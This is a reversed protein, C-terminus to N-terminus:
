ETMSLGSVASWIGVPRWRFGEPEKFLMVIDYDQTVLDGVDDLLKWGTAGYYHECVSPIAKAIAEGDYKGALLVSRMAVNAADYMYLAYMTPEAGMREKLKSLFRDGAPTSIYHATTGVAKVQIMFDGLEPPSKPPLIGALTIVDGGVLKVKSLSPYEKVHGLVNAMEAEQIYEVVGTREDAGFAEVERNLQAVESSYDAQGPTIRITKIEGKFHEQFVESIATAALDDRYFVVAKQIGLHMAVDAMAWGQLKDSAWMRFIYDKVSLAPSSVTTTVVAIHHTDVYSKLGLTVSSMAPGAIVQVGNAEVLTTVAKLGGEPTGGDDAVIAKFRINSGIEELLGNM